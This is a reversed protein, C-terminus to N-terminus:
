LGIGRLAPGIWAVSRRGCEAYNYFGVGDAGNEAIARVVQCTQEQSVVPTGLGPGNFGLRFSFHLRQHPQLAARAERVRQATAALTEGYAAATAIDVAPDSGGELLLGRRHVVQRLEQLFGAVVRRYCAQLDALAPVADLFQAMTEPLGEPTCPAQAFYSDLHGRVAQRVAEVDVGQRRAEDVDAPNFSLDMLSQELPRLYVGDREHHHGSVWAAGHARRRYDPAELLVAELPYNAALDAVLARVFARAAPHGPTLAHPLSEGYVNHITCEPHLLGVRTNHLCVTWASVAIGAKQAQACIDGFLDTAACLRSVAPRIPGEGYHAATPRFYTVGDELLHVHRKPNTGYLFFGAHYTSTLALRTIGLARLDDLLRDVGEDAFCWPFIYLTATTVAM